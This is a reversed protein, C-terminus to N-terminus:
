QNMPMVLYLFSTDGVGRILLPRGIGSATLTISETPILSIPTQLYRYNFSLEIPKGKVKASVREESEGTDANRSSFIVTNDDPAFNVKLKQFTDSFITTHRLATEFDKKLLTTETFVEKPIIQQYDPYTGITLRSTLTNGGWVCAIQHEDIILTIEDDPITQLIEVSNKAPLLLSMNKVPTKLTQKKEALRFSDTAVTTLIGSDISLFISALDPRVASTSACSAVSEIATKLLSGPLVINNENTEPLPISPFDEYPITKIISKAGGATVIIMEGTQEITVASDKTLSSAVQQLLQAPVAVVGQSKSEGRVNFDISVELNTARFKIGKNNSVILICSLVPLTSFRKQAFKATKQVAEIFDKKDISLFM